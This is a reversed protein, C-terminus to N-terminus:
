RRWVYELSVEKVLLCGSVTLQTFFPNETMSFPFSLWAMFECFCCSSNDFSFQGVSNSLPPRLLLLYPQETLFSLNFKTAKTSPPHSLFHLPPFNWLIQFASSACTCHKYINPLLFSHHSSSPIIPICLILLNVQWLNIAVSLSRRWWWKGRESSNGEMFNQEWM